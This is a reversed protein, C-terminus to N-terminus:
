GDDALGRGATSAAAERREAEQSGCRRIRFSQLVEAFIFQADDPGIGGIEAMEQLADVTEQWAAAHSKPHVTRDIELTERLDATAKRLLDRADAGNRGVFVRRWSAIEDAVATSIEIDESIM